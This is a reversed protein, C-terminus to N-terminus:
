GSHIAGSVSVDHCCLSQRHIQAVRERKSQTIKKKKRYAALGADSLALLSLLLLLLLLLPPPPPPYFLPSQLM